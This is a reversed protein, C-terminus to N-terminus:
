NQDGNNNNNQHSLQVKTRKRQKFCSSIPTNKVPFM